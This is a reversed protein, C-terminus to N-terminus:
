AVRVKTGKRVPWKLSDNFEMVIAATTGNKAAIQQATLTGTATYYKPATYKPINVKTGKPIKNGSGKPVIGINKVELLNVYDYHKSGYYLAALDWFSTDKNGTVTHTTPPTGQKSPLSIPVSPKTIGGATLPEPPIGFQKVAADIWKGQDVSLSEGEIYRRTATQAATGSALGQAVLWNAANRAWTENTQVVVPSVTAPDTGQQVTVTGNTAFGSYDADAPDGMQDADDEEAPDGEGPESPKMRWAVLALVVVFLGAIYLVPIGAIKKRLFSMDM